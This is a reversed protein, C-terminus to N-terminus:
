GWPGTGLQMLCDYGALQLSILVGSTCRVTFLVEDGQLIHVSVDPGSTASPPYVEAYFSIVEGTPFTVPFGEGGLESVALRLPKIRQQGESRTGFDVILTRLAVLPDNIEGDPGEPSTSLSYGGDSMVCVTAWGKGSGSPYEWFHALGEGDKGVGVYKLDAAQLADPDEPDEGFELHLYELLEKEVGTPPAPHDQTM